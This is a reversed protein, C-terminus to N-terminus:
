ETEHMVEMSQPSQVSVVRLRPSPAQKRMMQTDKVVSRFERGLRDPLPKAPELYSREEDLRAAGPLVAVDLREIGSKAVLKQIALDEVCELFDLHQGFAPPPLVVVDPRM